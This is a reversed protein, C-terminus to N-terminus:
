VEFPAPPNNADKAGTASRFREEEGAPFKKAIRASVLARCDDLPALSRDAPLIGILELHKLAPLSAIPKFSDVTQTKGSSDWGPSTALSLTELRSLDQLPKLTTVHPLHLISLYRLKHLGSLIDLSKDPFTAIVLTELNRFNAVPSLSAYKCHWVRLSTVQEVDKIVPFKKSKDRILDIHM